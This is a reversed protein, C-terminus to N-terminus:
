NKKNSYKTMKILKGILGIQNEGMSVGFGSYEVIHDVYQKFKFLM